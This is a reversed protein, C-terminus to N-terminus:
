VLIFSALVQTEPLEYTGTSVQKVFGMVEPSWWETKVVTDSVSYEVKYCDHGLVTQRGVVAVTYTTDSAPGMSPAAHEVFSWTAGVTFM